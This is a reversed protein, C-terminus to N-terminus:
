KYITLDDCLGWWENIRCVVITSLVSTTQEVSTVVGSSAVGATEHQMM